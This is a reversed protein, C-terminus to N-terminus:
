SVHLSMLYAGLPLLICTMIGELLNVEGLHVEIKRELGGRIRTVAFQGFSSYALYAGCSLLVRRGVVREYMNFYLLITVWLFGGEYLDGAWM